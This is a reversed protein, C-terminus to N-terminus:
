KRYGLGLNITGKLYKFVRKVVILNSEIPDSQFCACLCVSFLNNPRFATLYFLSGIMGKYVKQEVKLSVEDKELICTPHMPTKSINCESMDFKKM